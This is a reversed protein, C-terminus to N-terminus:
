TEGTRISKIIYAVTIYGIVSILVTSILGYVTGFLLYGVFGLTTWTINILNQLNIAIANGSRDGGSQSIETNYDASINSNINATTLLEEDTYISRLELNYSEIEPYNNFIEGRGENNVLLVYGSILSMLLLGVLLSNIALATLTQQAM